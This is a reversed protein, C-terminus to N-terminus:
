QDDEIPPISPPPEAPPTVPAKQGDGAPAPKKGGEDDQGAKVDSWMLSEGGAPGIASGYFGTVTALPSSEPADARRVEVDIRRLSQVQTQTVKLTWRWRQNAMDVDDSSEAVAPPAAQLRQNTLVNMAVWHAITRDRLYTGNRANQTVAEIVGLMGLAVIVLAALVEILTFGPARDAHRRM